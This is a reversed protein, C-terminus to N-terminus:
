YFVFLDSLDLLKREEVPVHLCLLLKESTKGADWNPLVGTEASM